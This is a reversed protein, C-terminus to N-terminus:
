YGSCSVPGAEPATGAERESVSRDGLAVASGVLTHACLTRAAARMAALAEQRDAAAKAATDDGGIAQFAQRAKTRAEVTEDLQEQLRKLEGEAEKERARVQNLILM